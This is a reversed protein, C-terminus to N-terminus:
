NKRTRMFKKKNFKDVGLCLNFLSLSGHDRIEYNGQTRVPVRRLLYLPTSSWENSLKSALRVRRSILEHSQILWRWSRMKRMNIIRFVNYLLHVQIWIGPMDNVITYVGAKTEGNIPFYTCQPIIEIILHPLVSLPNAYSRVRSLCQM